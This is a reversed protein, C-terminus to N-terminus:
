AFDYFYPVFDVVNKALILSPEIDFVAMRGVTEVPKVITEVIHYHPRDMYDDFLIRIRAKTSAACTVFCAVRFRGDILVTDPQAFYSCQWISTAYTHWQRWKEEGVPRGWKGVTGIPVFHPYVKGPPAPKVTALFESLRCLWAADSEVTFITKGVLKAAIVTSGGSGYELITKAETYAQRLYAAEAEPLTLTPARM